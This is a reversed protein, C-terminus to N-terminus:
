EETRLSPHIGLRAFTEMIINRVYDMNKPTTLISDHITYVPLNPRELRIRDAISHIFIVAEANQLVHAAHRYDRSKLSALMGAVSPYLCTLRDKLPNRWNNKDYMATLFRCKIRDRDDGNQMLSEYLHGEECIKIYRKLDPLNTDSQQLHRRRYPNAKDKFTRERLRVAAKKSRYFQQALLGAILPQSNALDLNVLRQGGVTLCCRLEKALSTIPMHVRGFRDCSFWYDGNAIRTCAETLIQRYEEVSTSSDEDPEMTDIIKCASATDFEILDLKDALWRHVPILPVSESAYVAWIRRALAENKCAIRKTQRYEPALKYGQSEKGPTWFRDFDIVGKGVLRDRIAPWIEPPIVRTLYYRKLHIWGKADAQWCLWKWHLLNLFYAVFWRHDKPFIEPALNVPVYFNPYKIQTPFQNYYPMARFEYKPTPRRRHIRGSRGTAM